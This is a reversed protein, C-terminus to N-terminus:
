ELFKNALEDLTKHNLNQEAIFRLTAIFLDRVGPVATNRNRELAKVDHLANKAASYAAVTPTNLFVHIPHFDLINPFSDKLSLSEIEFPKEDLLLGLDVWGFTFRLLGSFDLYPRAQEPHYLNADYVIGRKHAHDLISSSQTLSHSRLGRAEPFIAMVDDIIDNVCGTQGGLLFNFNPHIGLEFQSTSLGSLVDTKHTGFITAKVGFRSLLDLCDAIAVDPAWDVDLTICVNM